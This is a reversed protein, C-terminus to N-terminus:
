LAFGEPVGGPWVVRFTDLTTAAFPQDFAPDFLNAGQPVATAGLSQKLGHAGAFVGAGHTTIQSCAVSFNLSGGALPVLHSLAPGVAYIQHGGGFDWVAKTQALPRIEDVPGVPQDLPGAPFPPVRLLEDPTSFQAMWVGLHSGGPQGDLTFMEMKLTIFKKDPSFRGTGRTWRVLVREHAPDSTCALLAKALAPLSVNGAQQELAAVIRNLSSLVTNPQPLM